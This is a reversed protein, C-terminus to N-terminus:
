LCVTACNQASVSSLLPKSCHKEVKKTCRGMM